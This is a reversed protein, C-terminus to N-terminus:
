PFQIKKNPESIMWKGSDTSISYFSFSDKIRENFKIFVKNLISDGQLDNYENSSYDQGIELYINSRDFRNPFHDFSYHHTLIQETSDYRVETEIFNQHKELSSDKQNSSQSYQYLLFIIRIVFLAMIVVM